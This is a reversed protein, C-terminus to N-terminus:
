YAVLSIDLRGPRKTDTQGTPTYLSLMYEADVGAGLPDLIYNESTTMTEDAEEYAVFNIEETITINQTDTFIEESVEREDSQKAEPELLKQLLTVFEYRRTSILEVDYFFNDHDRMKFVIKKIMLNENIGQESDVVNIMSGAILGSRYTRCRIDIIPESCIYLEANARRRAIVNSEISDDRVLKEIKGFEAISIPDEAVAFVPVKPNGSFAVEDGNSLPNEFRIMSEQFNYLVDDTTFDDIFDIGVNQPTGNVSVTLNSFQYPLTLAKTDSGNVTIIDSFTAGEYTGGRVKIRNAVQTGDSGRQLSGRIYNYGNEPDDVADSFDFPAVNEYQSFFHIGKDADVWWDYGVVDALRKICVSLPLQNFVIKEILFTSNVNTTNFTPAYSSVLDNIIYFITQNEYTRAALLKDMTYTWDSCQVSIDVAGTNAPLGFDLSTITGGFVKTSGDFIEIEDGIQPDITKNATKLVSFRATDIQHTIQQTVSLSGAKIQDTVDVGGLEVTIM